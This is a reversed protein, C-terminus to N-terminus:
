ANGLFTATCFTLGVPDHQVNTVSDLLVTSVASEGVITLTAFTGVKALLSAYATTLITVSLALQGPERGTVQIINKPPNAYPVSRVGKITQAPFLPKTLASPEDVLFAVSGFTCDGAWDAPNFSM